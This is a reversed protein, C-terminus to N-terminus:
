PPFQVSRNSTKFMSLCFESKTFRGITDHREIQCYATLPDGPVAVIRVIMKGLFEDFNKYLEPKLEWTSSDRLGNRILEKDLEKKFIEDSVNVNKMNLQTMGTNQMGEGENPRKRFIIENSISTGIFLRRSIQECLASPTHPQESM